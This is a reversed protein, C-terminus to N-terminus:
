HVNLTEDTTPGLIASPAPHRRTLTTSAQEAELLVNTLRRRSVEGRRPIKVFVGTLSLGGKQKEQIM